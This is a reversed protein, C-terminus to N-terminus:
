ELDLVHRLGLGLVACETSNTGVPGAYGRLQGKVELVRFHVNGCQPYTSQTRETKGKPRPGGGAIATAGTGYKKQDTLQAESPLGGAASLCLRVLQM